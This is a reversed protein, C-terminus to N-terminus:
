LSVFCGEFFCFSNLLLLFFHFSIKKKETESYYFSSFFFARSGHSATPMGAKCRCDCLDEEGIKTRESLQPVNFSSFSDGHFIHSSYGVNLFARCSRRCVSSKLNRRGNKQKTQRTFSGKAKAYQM